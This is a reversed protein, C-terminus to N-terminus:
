RKLLFLALIGLGGYLLLNPDFAGSQPTDIKSEHIPQGDPGIPVGDATYLLEEPSLKMLDEPTGVVVGQAARGTQAAPGTGVLAAGVKGLLAAAAAGLAPSGIISGGIAGVISGIAALNSEIHFGEIGFTGWDQQYITRVPVLFWDQVGPSLFYDHDIAADRAREGADRRILSDLTGVTYPRDVVRLFVPSIPAGRPFQAGSEHSLDSIAALRRRDAEPVEWLRHGAWRRIVYAIQAESPSPAATTPRWGTQYCAKASGYAPDGFLANGCQYDGAPLTKFTFKSGVGYGIVSDGALTFTGNEGAIRYAPSASALAALIDAAPM